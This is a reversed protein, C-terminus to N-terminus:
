TLLALLDDHARRGADPGGLVTFPATISVNRRDAGLAGAELAAVMRDFSATQSPSLVREPALTSKPMMGAGSAVGGDDFLSVTGGLVGFITSVIGTLSGVISMLPLTIVGLAPGLANSFIESIPDALQAMFVGGGIYNTLEPLYGQLLDGISSVLVDTWALALDTGVEAIVDVGAQGAASILAGVINGGPGSVSGLGTQAAQAGASIAANAVAKAIPVIIKEIIYKVLAVIVKKLIRIREEAAIEESSQARDILGSVDSYLAGRADFAQFDGRFQRVENTLRLMTDRQQLEVGIVSLLVRVLLNVIAGIIPVQSVGFFEAGVYENTIKGGVGGGGVPAAAFQLYRATDGPALVLEPRGSLNAGPVGSEWLGGEDFVQPAPTQQQTQMYITSTQHSASSVAQGVASAIPPAAAAGVSKGIAATTVQSIGNVGSSVGAQIVPVLMKDTLMGAIGGMIELGKQTKEAGARAESTATRQLSSLTDSFVQGRADFAEGERKEGGGPGGFVGEGPTVGMRQLALGFGATVANEMGQQFSATLGAGGRQQRAMTQLSFVMTDFLRTQEPDLVREPAITGKSMYGSGYALGGADFGAPTATAGAVPAGVTAPATPQGPVQGLAAVLRQLGKIVEDIQANLNSVGASAQVAAEGTQAVATNAKGLSTTFDQNAGTMQPTPVATVPMNSPLPIAYSQRTHVHDTHGGYDGAYYGTGSVDQGGPAVGIRQGTQPNQWIVQEVQDPITKLYEAFRQMDETTGVWDIGKNVGSGEQHGPYTSPKLNFAAGLQNVWDPFAVGTGGFGGSNSGVPVGYAQGTAAGAAPVAAARAPGYTAPTGGAAGVASTVPKTIDGPNTVNVPVPKSVPGAKGAIQQLALILAEFLKTQEPSLVREPAITDKTIVGTGTAIGGDDFTAYKLHSLTCLEDVTLKALVAADRPDMMVLGGAALGPLVDKPKPVGRRELEQDGAKGVESLVAIPVGVEPVLPVVAGTITEFAQEPHGEERQQSAEVAKVPVNVTDLVRGAKSAAKGIQGPSEAVANLIPRAKKKAKDWLSGGDAFAPILGGLARRPSPPLTQGPKFEIQFKPKGSYGPVGVTAAGRDVHQAIMLGKAATGVPGPLRAMFPLFRDVENITEVAGGGARRLLQSGDTIANLAGANIADFTPVGLKKVVAARVVYEGNSLLAPVLDDTPGGAGWVPGGRYLQRAVMQYYEEVTPQQEGFIDSQVGLQGAIDIQLFKIFAPWDHVNGQLDCGPPPQGAVKTAEARRPGAEIAARPLWQENLFLNIKPDIGPAQIEKFGMLGLPYQIGTAPDTVPAGGGSEARNFAIIGTVQDQSLGAAMLRSAIYKELDGGSAAAAAPDGGTVKLGTYSFTPAPLKSRVWDWVAGAMRKLFLKPWSGLEGGFSNDTVIKDIIFDWARKAAAYKPNFGVGRAPGPLGGTGEVLQGAASVIAAMAWHVHDMHEANTSDNYMLPAGNKLNQWGSLPWHILELSDPYTGYIWRAIDPMPGTLDIAKGQRHYDYGSGVDVSRTGSCMEASPFAQRVADWMAHQIETTLGLNMPDGPSGHLIGGTIPAAPAAPANAAPATVPGGAAATISPLPGDMIMPINKTSTLGNLADLRRRGLARAAQERILYEGDSAWIPVKDETPGGPGVIPGGRWMGAPVPMDDLPKAGIFTAIKNWAEKIGKNYVTEIVFRIPASVKAKLDNWINGINTVTERFWGALTELVPKIKDLTNTKIVGWIEAIKDRINEWATRIADRLTEWIPILTTKIWNIAGDWHTKLEGWIREAIRKIEAWADDFAKRLSEWLPKLTNDIFGVLTDWISKLKTWAEDALRKIEKWADEFTQKTQNWLPILTENVFRVLGEWVGKIDSWAKEAMERIETWTEEFAKRLSEWLPKLTGDVYGKVAEWIEKVGAWWAEAVEKIYNWAKEFATKLTNWIPLLESDVHATVKEWVAKLVGWVAEAIMKIDDWASKFAALLKNWIPILVERVVLCIDDWAPKIINEWVSKAINGITEWVLKADALLQNWAPILVERVFSVMYDWVPKIVNNWAFSIVVQIGEWINKLLEGARKMADGMFETFKKWAKRGEETKTFFLVLGAVLAGIAVIAIGLPNANMAANLLWQAGTWLQTAGTVLITKTRALTAKTDVDKFVGVLTGGAEKLHGVLSTGEQVAGFAGQIAGGLGSDGFAEKVKDVGPIKDILDQAWRGLQTDKLKGVETGIGQLAKGVEDLGAGSKIASALGSIKGALDTDAIKAVDSALNSMVGKASDMGPVKDILEQAWAGISTKGMQAVAGGIERISPMMEQLSRAQGLDNFANAVRDTNEVVDNLGGAVRGVFDTVPSLNSSALQGIVDAAGSAGMKGLDESIAHLQPKLEGAAGQLGSGLEGIRDRATTLGETFAGAIQGGLKSAKTVTQDVSGAVKGLATDAKDAVGDFAGGAQKGADTFADTTDKAAARTKKAVDTAKDALKDFGSVSINRGIEGINKNVDAIVPAIKKTVAATLQSGLDSADLTVGLSIKGAAPSTM